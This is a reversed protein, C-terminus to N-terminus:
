ALSLANFNAQFGTPGVALMTIIYTLFGVLILSFLVWFAYMTAKAGRSVILGCLLYIVISIIFIMGKTSILAAAGGWGLRAFIPAIGWQTFWPIYAGAVLLIVAFLFFSIAFGLVPRIVRSVFMYDGGSRPMAAGFLAYFIGCIIAIPIAILATIPLNVGQFLQLAWIGYVMIAMPAMFVVNHVLADRASVSRM